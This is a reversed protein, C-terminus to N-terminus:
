IINLTLIENKLKVKAGVPVTIKENGHTIKFGGIVPINYSKAIEEFIEDVWKENDTNTFEGLVIGKLNNKFKDINFLQTIMKDIKYATEDIDETFLIFDEDPIFDQGCLSTVTALNGGWFIGSAKGKNLIKTGRFELTDNKLANFFNDITYKNPNEAGFDGQIMPAHYTILGSNKLFMLLLATIDSYGCFIKPNQRIMEYNIDKILRIAGYGGRLCVIADIEPNAFFKELQTLRTKDDGALYNKKDTLKESLVVKYGKNEFFNKARIINVSNDVNGSTAIIGITDGIELKKPKILNM